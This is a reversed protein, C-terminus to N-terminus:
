ECCVVEYTSSFVFYYYGEEPAKFKVLNRTSNRLNPCDRTPIVPRHLMTSECSRLMEESSSTSSDQSVSDDAAFPHTYTGHDLAIGDSQKTNVLPNSIPDEEEIARNESEDVENEFNSFTTENHVAKDVNASTKDQKVSSNTKTTSVVSTEKFKNEAAKITFTNIAEISQEEM